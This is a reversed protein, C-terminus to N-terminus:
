KDGKDTISIPECSCEMDPYFILVHKLFEKALIETDFDKTAIAGCVNITVRYIIDPTFLNLGNIDHVIYLEHGKDSTIHIETIDRGSFKREVNINPFQIKEDNQIERIKVM